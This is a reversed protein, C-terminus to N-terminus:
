SPFQNRAFETLSTYPEEECTSCSFPHGKWARAVGCSLIHAVALFIYSFIEFTIDTICTNMATQELKGLAWWPEPHDLIGLHFSDVHYRGRFLNLIIIIRLSQGVVIRVIAGFGLAFYEHFKAKSIEVLGTLCAKPTPDICLFLMGVRNSTKQQFSMFSHIKTNGNNSNSFISQIEQTENLPASDKKQTRSVPVKPFRM